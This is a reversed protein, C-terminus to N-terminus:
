FGESAPRLDLEQTWTSQPQHAIQWYTEAIDDPRMMKSADLGHLARSRESDIIGDLITHCVHIGQPQFERALSQTLGRLAFKASAFASFRAGGRLSATAGSVIFAGGGARAMPQLTSQGLLVSSQVMSTWTRQYDSLRGEEFPRIVLEAANHIVVKPAGHNAIIQEITAGMAAEDSLDLTHFEGVTIDPKSRGLGVSIFGGKEFRALLAQGLGAGAGAVLALPAKDAM